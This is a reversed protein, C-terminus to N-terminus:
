PSFLASAVAVAFEFVIVMRAYATVSVIFAAM